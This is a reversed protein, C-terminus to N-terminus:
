AKVTKNLLHDAIKSLPLITDVAGLEVAVKPMGWVVCSAEDQAVTIAADDHLRKMAAAGDAGMGTLMAVVLKRGGLIERHMRARHNSHLYSCQQNTLYKTDPYSLM